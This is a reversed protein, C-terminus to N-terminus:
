REELLERRPEIPRRVRQTIARLSEQLPVNFHLRGRGAGAPFTVVVRGVAGTARLKPAAAAASMNSGAAPRPLDPADLSPADGERSSVVSGGDLVLIQSVDRDEDRAVLEVISRTPQAPTEVM